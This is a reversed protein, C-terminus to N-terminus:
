ATPEAYAAELLDGPSIGFVRQFDPYREISLGHRGTEIYFLAPVSINLLGAADERSMDRERRLKEIAAGMRKRLEAKKRKRDDKKQEGGSTGM